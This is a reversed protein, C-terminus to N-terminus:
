GIMWDARTNRRNGKDYTRFELLLSLFPAPCAPLIILLFFNDLSIIFRVPLPLARPLVELHTDVGGTRGVKGVEPRIGISYDTKSISPMHSDHRPVRSVVCDSFLVPDPLWLPSLLLSSQSSLRLSHFPHFLHLSGSAAFHSLYHSNCCIRVILLDPCTMMSKLCNSGNVSSQRALVRAASPRM